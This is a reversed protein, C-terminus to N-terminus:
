ENFGKMIKILSVSNVEHIPYYSGLIGLTLGVFILILYLKIPFHFIFPLELFIDFQLILSCSIVVGILTGTIISGLIITAAEYLYIRLNQNKTVGISRMIGYNTINERINSSFSIWILFFSLILAIIGLVLFIYSIIFKVKESTEIVDDLKFIFYKIENLHNYLGFFVMEKLEESANDKYKLIFQLKRLGEVTSNSYDGVDRNFFQIERDVLKKMDDTSIYAESDEAISYYSSYTYIGPLKKAMGVIKAPINHEYYQVIRIRGPNDISLGKQRRIGESALMNIQLDGFIKNYKLKLEKDYPFIFYDDNDKEKFVPPTNPNDYLMKIIDVKGDYTHSINLKKDYQSISYLSTYTSDIYNRDIAYFERYNCPRGGLTCIQPYIHFDPTYLLDNAPYSIYAYDQISNPYIKSINNLFGNILTQNLTSNFGNEKMLLVMTDGAIVNKALTEIFDVILNLTCGSFIIFGIAIMFILSVQQDRRNHGELNKLVILHLNRDKFSLFMIIKLIFKQLYPVILETLIILGILITILIGLMIFLFLRSNLFLFSLPAVYYTFIGITILTISMILSSSSVGINELKIMSVVLDSIKKNFISLSEKLNRNLVKKIPFYSSILPISIGIAVGFILNSKSMFFPMVLKTYSYFLYAVFNNAIYSSILGLFSGPIAFILGQIIILTILNNKKFGLARLMSSEYAREDVNGLMLSYILLVSLIWLFTMIGFLIVQLFTRVVDLMKFNDYLSAEINVMYNQGLSNIIESVKNSIYYRMSKYDKNYINFKDKFIVNITLAYKNVDLKNLYKNMYDIIINRKSKINLKETIEDVIRKGNKKLYHVIHNSDIALVNGSASPWKGASPKIKEKVTLNIEFNIFQFIRDIFVNIEEGNYEKIIRYFDINYKFYNTIQGKPSLNLINKNFTIIDTTENYIFTQNIIINFINKFLNSNLNFNTFNQNLSLINYLDSIGFKILSSLKNLDSKKINFSSLDKLNISTNFYLNSLNLLININDNVIKNIYENGIINIIEKIPKFNLITKKINNYRSSEFFNNRIKFDTEPDFIDNYFKGINFNDDDNDNDYKQYKPKLKVRDQLSKKANKKNENKFLIGGDFAQLLDWLRLNLELSDGINLQFAKALTTSIYCENIKLPILNLGRGIGIDTERASNIVFVNTLFEPSSGVKSTKGQFIWRPTVGDIFSLRKLRNKVEYFNLFNYNLQYKSTLPDSQSTKNYIFNDFNPNKVDINETSLYPTLILDIESRQEESIKLFICPSLQIANLLLTLFFVVLFISVLGIKFARQKKILDSKLYNIIVILSSQFEEIKKM